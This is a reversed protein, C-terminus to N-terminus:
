FFLMLQGAVVDNDATEMGAVPHSYVVSMQFPFVFKKKLYWDVTSFTLATVVSHLVQAPELDELWLYKQASAPNSGSYRSKSQYQLNYGAQLILGFNSLSYEVSSGLSVWDAWRRTVTEKDAVDSLFDDASAPLRRTLSQPLQAMYSGYFNIRGNRFAYLDYIAMAGVKFRGDGTPIDLARDANPPTGTPLTVTLQTALADRDDNWFRYKGLLIMDGIDNITQSQLPEYHLDSLKRDTAHNIKFAAEDCKVPNAKCIENIVRSGEDTRKFGKDVSVDVHYVPLAMGVTLHETVGMALAPVNINVVAKVAGTVNGPSGNDPSNEDPNKLFSRAIIKDTENGAKDGAKDIVEKWTVAKNLKVGLPELGGAKNFRSDMFM